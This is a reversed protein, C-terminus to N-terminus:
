GHRHWRANFVRLGSDEVMVPSDPHVFRWARYRTTNMRCGRRFESGVDASQISCNGAPNWRDSGTVTDLCVKRHNVRIFTSYGVQVRLTTLCPKITLGYNPCGSIPRSEPDTEVLVKRHNITVLNQIPSLGVHGLEHECVLVADETLFKM